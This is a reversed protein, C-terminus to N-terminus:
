NKEQKKPNVLSCYFQFFLFINRPFQKTGGRETIGWEVINHSLVCKEDIKNWRDNNVNWKNKKSNETSIKTISSNDVWGITPLNWKNVHILIWLWSFFDVLWDLVCVCVCVMLCVFFYIFIPFDISLCQYFHRNALTDFQFCMTLKCLNQDMPVCFYLNPHRCEMMAWKANFGQRHFMLFM